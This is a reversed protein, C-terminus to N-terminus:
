LFGQNSFLEIIAAVSVINGSPIKGAWGGGGGGLSASCKFFYSPFRIARLQFNPGYM